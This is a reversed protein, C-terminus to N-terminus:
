DKSQTFGGDIPGYFSAYENVELDGFYHTMATSLEKVSLVGDKNTDLASFCKKADEESVGYPQCAISFYENFSVIGDGNIDFLQLFRGNGSNNIKEYGPMKTYVKWVSVLAKKTTGFIGWLTVNKHFDIVEKVFKAHMKPTVAGGAKEFGDLAMNAWM